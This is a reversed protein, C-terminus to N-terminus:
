TKPFDVTLDRENGSSRVRRWADFAAVEEPTAHRFLSMFRNMAAKFERGTPDAGKGRLADVRAQARQLEELSM